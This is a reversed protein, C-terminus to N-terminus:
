EYHSRVRSFPYPDISITPVVICDHCPALKRRALYRKVKAVPAADIDCTHSMNRCGIWGFGHFSIKLRHYPVATCAAVRVGLITSLFAVVHLQQRARLALCLAAVGANQIRFHSPPGAMSNACNSWMKQSHLRRSHSSIMTSPTMTVDVRQLMQVILAILFRFPQHAM